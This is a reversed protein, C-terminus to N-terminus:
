FIYSTSLLLGGFRIRAPLEQGSSNRTIGTGQGYFIGIGSQSNENSNYSIGLSGGWLDARIENEAVVTTDGLASPNYFAGVFLPLRDRINWQIGTNLRPTPTTKVHNKTGLRPIPSYETALQYSVDLLALFKGSPQFSIGLALDTPLKYEGDQDQFQTNSITIQSGPAAGTNVSTTKRYYEVESHVKLNPSQVKFGLGWAENFQYYTGLTAAVSMHQFKTRETESVVIQSGDQYQFNASTTNLDSHYIGWLSTGWTWKKTLRHGHSLGVWISQTLSVPVLTGTFNTTQFSKTTSLQLSEPVLVSIAFTENAFKFTSVLSHPIASFGSVDYPINQSEINFAGDMSIEFMFYASGTLSVQTSELNALGAPNYFVASTDRTSGVGTNGMYAASQGMPILNPNYIGAQSWPTALAILFLIFSRPGWVM